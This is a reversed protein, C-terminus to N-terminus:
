RQCIKKVIEVSNGVPSATFSGVRQAWWAYELDKCKEDFAKQDFDSGSALAANVDAFFLEWRPKYYSSVLGAWTRDAYDTLLNGRDGWSTLLNRANSEFYDAEAADAGWSRADAIWKGVLFYSQSQLLEELTDFTALLEAELTKMTELAEAAGESGARATEYAKKYEAFKAEFRNGLWQRTLNVIDFEYAAGSGDAELLGKIVKLLEDNQYTFRISSHYSSSRGFSPRLNLIPSHGPVSRDIYINHLLNNWATRGAETAAGTRRDALRKSYEDIDKHLDYDWAKEFIYQYMFPNCDFGELTSGLGKFNSGASAFTNEIKANVDAINGALYTNGGFNGLYCWIFPVGYYSQTKQWVEMRECYYDLLLSKEAPYSTIYAKVRDDTDDVFWYKRENYFLWTMQLWVADPDAAALSEYCQRSVRALYEPEWSRPIMENFLDIGYIHDTGYLEIEKELFKKQIVPFLSDMPDLFYPYDELAFGAWDSMREIQAEPKVEKLAAPVHGAFAPLVPKMNFERERAVIQQQLAEQGELWSKPLPGGWHDINLMRHWPLHAPGTFYSRVQEDSLGMETWIKYWIAEQGTIALPLNIGQLAMWDIFHEWDEWKWWPMTYGYTCYNLFFRDQVRANVVVPEEIVPLKSPLTVKENKFWGVTRNCWYKLYHNFGVALSNANNATIVIKGGGSELRFWDESPRASTTNFDASARAALRFEFGSPYEGTVREALHQVAAIQPDDSYTKRHLLIFAAIVAAMVVLFKITKSM